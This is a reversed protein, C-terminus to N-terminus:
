AESAIVGSYAEQDVAGTGPVGSVHIAFPFPLTAVVLTAGNSGRLEIGGFYRCAAVADIPAGGPRGQCQMIPNQGIAGECPIGPDLWDETELLLVEVPSSLPFARAEEANAFTSVMKAAVPFVEFKYELDHQEARVEVVEGSATELACGFVGELGKARGIVGITRVGACLKALAAKTEASVPLAYRNVHPRVDGNLPV